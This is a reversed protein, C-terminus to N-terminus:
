GGISTRECKLCRTGVINKNNAAMLLEHKTTRKCQPCYRTVKIRSIM